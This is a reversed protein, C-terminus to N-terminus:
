QGGEARKSLAAAIQRDRSDAAHQYLLAMQPTTHGLRRMLEALTAGSQAAMTAGLHRLDHFRLGPKDAQARAIWWYRNFTSSTLHGGRPGPFLLGDKGWAAHMELHTKILPLLHPPITVKRKGAKSKPPGVFAEGAVWTVGRQVDVVGAKLDIDCRRLEMIEGYRLACWAALHVALQLRQPMAAVLTALEDLEPPNIEISRGVSGAKKIVCPSAPILGDTTATLMITRLLGYARARYVKGTLLRAHWNRVDTPSIATLARDALTPRLFRDLIVRYDRHTRPSLERQELWREAYEGFTLVETKPPQWVGRVMDARITALYTDADGHTDFTVPAKHVRGASDVYRAQHKGSPLIRLSGFARRPAKPDVCACKPRAM